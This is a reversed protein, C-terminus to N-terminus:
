HNRGYREIFKVASSQLKTLEPQHQRNFSEEKKSMWLEVDIPGVILCSNNNLHKIRRLQNSLGFEHYLNEIIRELELAALVVVQTGHALEKLNTPPSEIIQYNLNDIQKELETMYPLQNSVGICIMNENKSDKIDIMDKYEKFEKKFYIWIFKEFPLEIM